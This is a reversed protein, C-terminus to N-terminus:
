LRGLYEQSGLMAAITQAEGARRLSGLGAALELRNPSRQLFRQYLATVLRQQAATQGMLDQAMSLRSGGRTMRAGLRAMTAPDIPRGLLDAFLASLFGQNTAHGRLRFYEPSSLVLATLQELSATRVRAASASPWVGAPLYTASQNRLFGIRADPTAAIAQAVRTRSWGQALKATWHALAAPDVPRGLLDTFLESVYRENLTGRFGHPLLAEGITATTVAPATEARDSLTVRVPYQGEDSYTHSGAVAYGAVEQLVSGPSRTGDGWDIVATFRSAPEANNGHQFQAVTRSLLSIGEFGSVPIATVVLPPEAVVAADRVVVSSGAADHSTDIDTITVTITYSGEESYAKPGDVVFRGSSDRTIIGTSTTGDGWGIEAFFSAPTAQPDPDAFSAVVGDFPRFEELSFNTGKAALPFHDLTIRGLANGQQETFWLNGDPGAAIRGPDSSATPIAFETVVGQPTIRGIRNSTYDETFWLNGDPGAAIESASSDSSPLPFETVVGAPTIRGVQNTGYDAFWLNGDPGATIGYTLSAPNPLSFLTFSGGPTVRGITPAAVDTFWLNGDPGATIRAPMGGAEPVPFETVTGDPTVRGIQGGGKETFWVNGDPGSTIGEPDSMNLVDFEAIHSGDPSIRGVRSSTNEAFWINGDPGLTVGDPMSHPTPLDFLDISGDANRRGIQNASGEAYWLTGAPGAVVGTPYSGPAALPFESILGSCVTRSELQELGRGHAARKPARLPRVIHRSRLSRKGM